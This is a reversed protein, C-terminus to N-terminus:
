GEVNVVEGGILGDRTSMGCGGLMKEMTRQPSLKLQRYTRDKWREGEEGRLREITVVEDGRM